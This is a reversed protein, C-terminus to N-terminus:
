SLWMYIEISCCVRCGSFFHEGVFSEKSYTYRDDVRGGVRKSLNSVMGTALLGMLRRGIGWVRTSALGTKAWTPGSGCQHEQSWVTYPSDEASGGVRNGSGANIPQALCVGNSVHATHLAKKYILDLSALDGLQSFRTRKKRVPSPTGKPDQKKEAATKKRAAAEADKSKKAKRRAKRAIAHRQNSLRTEYLSVPSLTLLVRPRLKQAM